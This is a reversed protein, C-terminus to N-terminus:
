ELQGLLLEPPEAQARVPGLVLAEELGELCVPVASDEARQRNVGVGRSPVPREAAVREPLAVEGDLAGREIAAEEDQRETPIVLNEPRELEAEGRTPDEV